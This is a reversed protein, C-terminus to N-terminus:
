SQSGIIRETERGGEWRGEQLSNANSKKRMFSLTRVLLSNEHEVWLSRKGFFGKRLAKPTSSGNLLRGAEYQKWQSPNVSMSVCCRIALCGKSVM